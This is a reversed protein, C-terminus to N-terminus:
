YTFQVIGFVMGASAPWFVVKDGRKLKDEKLAMDIAVPISASVLNGYKPYVAVYNKRPDVGLVEGIELYSESSAAHPFWIDPVDINKITKRALSILERKGADFLVGGFSVFKHTGHLNHKDDFDCFEHFNDLSITCFSSLDPDSEFAFSWKDDLGSVITSSAAEGITYCPLTYEIQNAKKIKWLDPYGHEYMNFEGNVIMIHEYIGAQFFRYAIDLARTWSMCADTIDFCQCNMGLMKAFFYANAPEKFGKGVGCYILLDIKDKSLSAKQLSEEMAQKIFDIAKENKSRDRWYRTNSGSKKLLALTQRQYLKVTKSPLDPNLREIENLVWENSVELSPIAVAVADIKM